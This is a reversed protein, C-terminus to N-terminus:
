VDELLVIMSFLFGVVATIIQIWGVVLAAVCFVAFEQWFDAPAILWRALLYLWVPILACLWIIILSVGKIIASDFLNKHEKMFIRLNGSIRDFSPLKM